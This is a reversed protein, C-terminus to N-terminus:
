RQGSSLRAIAIRLSAAMRAISRALAGIEDARAAERVDHDFNGRSIEETIATLRRIPEVMGSSILLAFFAAVVIAGALLELMYTDTEHVRSYVEDEDMQVAVVWDLRTKRVAARLNRGDITYRVSESIGKSAEFAPHTHMDKLEKDMVAGTMAILKGDPSFLLAQGTHGIKEHALVDTIESLANSKALVGVVGQGTSQDYIPVAVVWSPKNITKSIVVQQGVPKGALVDKVYIRDAYNIPAVNDNRGVSMGDLGVTFVLFSWPQKLSMSVLLPKQLDPRMSRMAAVTAMEDMSQVNVRLWADTRDAFSNAISLLQLDALREADHHARDRAYYWTVLLPLMAAVLFAFFLKPFIGLGRRGTPEAEM